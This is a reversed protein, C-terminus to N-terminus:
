KVNSNLILRIKKPNVVGTLVIVVGYLLVAVSLLACLVGIQQWFMDQRVFVDRLYPMAAYLMGGMVGCALLIRPLSKKFQTDFQTDQRGKLGRSLLIIQIWGAFSTAAAIGIVGLNTQFVFWLSLGINVVTTFVSIKVPTLTDQRAWYATSYVKVAIYAPLGFAYAMLVASTMKAADASFAGHEFLTVIIPHAVIFLGVAAPLALLLCVEMARNFLGQAEKQNDSAIARSLMPLLATGVAIGVMGLPLQNLRDAYYLYSISGTELFSAIIMDAFLNIQVVGAGIVGPGMLALLKKTEANFKIQFLSFNVRVGSRKLCVFLLLFQLFGATLVGWALAHGATEFLGNLFLFAILSLNFLIPAAAFPAFRNHANLAAGILATLSMLLLYPFTIRAMDTALGHRVGDGAFGPAVLDIVWPMALLALMVFGLLGWLMISFINGAFAAAEEAGDKELKESYLPVFSVSFAGEATIRRFLNPLKLAVFFADAVPGAGLIIATLVDRTFGAVRSLGTLGAVTAM